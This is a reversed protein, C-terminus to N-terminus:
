SLKRTLMKWKELPVDEARVKESLGCDAFARAVVEKSFLYALNSALFKRKSAFGAKVVKFFADERMDAFTKKSIGDILLIASDVSPPPNFNGRSVKAVVRPIGYAKVSLSLISEKGNRAVIRDAVERQILLAIARPRTDTTLFQRIIEGTIYYPINAALVYEGARLDSSEPRFNRIDETIITLTRKAIEEKFEIKLMEVLSADKEVAIVSGGTALLERTLAGKGPGIELIAERDKIGAAKALLRAPEPRTLFHQGLRAPHSKRVSKMITM